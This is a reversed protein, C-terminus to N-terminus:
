EKHSLINCYLYSKSIFDFQSFDNLWLTRQEFNFEGWILYLLWNQNLEKRGVNGNLGLNVIDLKLDIDAAHSPIYNAHKTLERYIRKAV